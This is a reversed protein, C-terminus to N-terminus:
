VESTKVESEPTDQCFLGLRPRGLPLGIRTRRGAYLKARTEVPTLLIIGYITATVVFFTILISFLRRLLFELM